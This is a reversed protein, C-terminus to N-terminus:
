AGAGAARGSLPARLARGIPYLRAQVNMTFGALTAIPGSTVRELGHLLAAVETRRLAAQDRPVFGGAVLLGALGAVALLSLPTPLPTLRLAHWAVKLTHTLAGAMSFVLAVPIVVLVKMADYGDRGHAGDMAFAAASARLRALSADLEAHVVPSHVEREFRPFVEASAGIAPGFALVRTRLSAHDLERKVREAWLSRVHPHALFTEPTVDRGYDDLAPFAARSLGTRDIADRYASQIDRGFLEDFDERRVPVWGEPAQPVSKRLERSALRRYRDNGAVVDPPVRFPAIMRLYRVWAEDAQRISAHRATRAQNAARGYAGYLGALYDRTLPVMLRNYLAEAGPLAARVDEEALRALVEELRTEISDAHALLFPLAALAVRGEVSARLAGPLHLGEVPLAPVGERLAHIRDVGTTVLVAARREAPTTRATLGQVLADIALHALGVAAVTVAAAALGQRVRSPGARGALLPVLVLALAVGTLTRGVQEVQLIEDKTPATGLFEVLYSTFAVETVLYALTAALLVLRGTM